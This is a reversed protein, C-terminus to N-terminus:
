GGVPEVAKLPLHAGRRREPPARGVKGKKLKVTCSSVSRRCTQRGRTRTGGMGHIAEDGSGPGSEQDEGRRLHGEGRGVM